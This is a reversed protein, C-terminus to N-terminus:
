ISELQNLIQATNKRFVGLGSILTGLFPAFLGPFFGVWLNSFIIKAHVQNQIMFNQNGTLIKTTDLGVEQLYYAPLLGISTGLFTGVLGLVLAELLLSQYIQKKEEGLALRLGMERYRRLGNILGLNWLIFGLLGIFFILIWSMWSEIQDLYTDLGDQDSLTIMQPSLESLPHNQNFHRKIELARPRNLGKEKFFGVIETAGKRMGLARQLDKLDGILSARDLPKIGFRVMGVLTFNHIVMGGNPDNSILTAKEGLTLQLKEALDLTLLIEGPGQPLRGQALGEQLHFAQIEQKHNFLELGFGLIPSQSRTEGKADPVDLLGGFRLRPFFNLDPYSTALENKLTEVQSLALDLSSSQNEAWAGRTLLKVHGTRFHAQNSLTGYLAGQLWAQFLVLLAVGLSIVLLPFLSRHRDRLLGKLLFRIM